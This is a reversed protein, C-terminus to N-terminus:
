IFKTQDCLSGSGNSPPAAKPKFGWRDVEKQFEEKKRRAMQRDYCSIKNRLKPPQREKWIWKVTWHRGDFKARFDKDVILCSGNRGEDDEGKDELNERKTMIAAM